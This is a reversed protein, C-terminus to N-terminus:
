KPQPVVKSLEKKSKIEQANEGTMIFLHTELQILVENLQKNVERLKEIKKSMIKQILNFYNKSKIWRKM